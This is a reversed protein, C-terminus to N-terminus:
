GRPSRDDRSAFDPERTPELLVAFGRDGEYMEQIKEDPIEMEFTAM